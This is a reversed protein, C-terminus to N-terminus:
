GTEQSKKREQRVTIVWWLFNEKWKYAGLISFEDGLDM